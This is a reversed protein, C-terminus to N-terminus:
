FFRDNRIKRVYANKHGKPCCPLCIIWRCYSLDSSPPDSRLPSTTETLPANYSTDGINKNTNNFCQVFSPGLSQIIIIIICIFNLFCPFLFEIKIACGLVLLTYSLNCQNSIYSLQQVPCYSFIKNKCGHNIHQPCICCKYIDV